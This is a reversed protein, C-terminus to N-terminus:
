GDHPSTKARQSIAFVAVGVGVLLSSCVCDSLKADMGPTAAFIGWVLGVLAFLGGIVLGTLTESGSQRNGM